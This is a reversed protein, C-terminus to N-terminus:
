VATLASENRNGIMILAKEKQDEIIHTYVDMTIGVEAHGLLESIVKIDVGSRFLNSAFSHRLAHPGLNKGSPLGARRKVNTMLREITSPHVPQGNKSTIVYKQKGTIEYLHRMADLAEDNMFITREGAVSKLSEQDLLKIKTDKSKDRNKVVVMSNEVTIIRKDFDVDRKWQLGLLEGLRMGTNLLLPIVYGWKHVPQGNHFRETAFEILLNQEEISFYKVKKGKNSGKKGETLKKGPIVVAYMPNFTIKHAAVGWKISANLADYVKKITSYSLGIDYLANLHNQVDDSTLSGMQLRGLYPFIHLQLTMELRDYSTPKLNPKKYNTLWNTMFAQVSEARTDIMSSRDIERQWQKLVKKAEAESSCTKKKEHSKKDYPSIYRIRAYYENESIKRISGSGKERRQTETKM